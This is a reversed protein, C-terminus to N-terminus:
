DDLIFTNELFLPKSCKPHQISKRPTSPQPVRVPSDIGTAIDWVVQVGPLCSVAEIRRRSNVEITFCAVQEEQQLLQGVCFLKFETREVLFLNFETTAIQPEHNAYQHVVIQYTGPVPFFMIHEVPKNSNRDDTVKLNGLSNMDVDLDSKCRGCSRNRQSVDEGHPCIVHLDLDNWNFWELGVVTALRSKKAGFSHEMRTLSIKQCITPCTSIETVIKGAQNPANFDLNQDKAIDLIQEVVQVNKQEAALHLPTNGNADTVNFDANNEKLISIVESTQPAPNSCLIHLATQGQADKANIFQDLCSFNKLKKNKAKQIVKQVLSPCGLCASMLLNGKNKCQLDVEIQDTELLHDVLEHKGDQLMLMAPTLGDEDQKNIDVGAKILINLSNTTKANFLPTRGANDPEDLRAGKHLAIPLFEHMDKEVLFHAPTTGDLTKLNLDIEPRSLLLRTSGFDSNAAALLVPTAGFQDVANIDARHELLSHIVEPRSTSEISLLASHLATQKKQNMQHVNAGENLLLRTTNLNSSGCSIILPTDGRNNPQNLVKKERKLLLEATAGNDGALAWILPSNGNSDPIDPKGGHDLVLQILDPEANFSLKTLLTQNTPNTYGQCAPLPQNIQSQAHKLVFLLIENSSCCFELVRLNICNPPTKPCLLFVMPPDENIIALDLPLQDRWNKEILLPETGPINLIANAAELYRTQAAVHLPQQGEKTDKLRVLPNTELLNLLSELNRQDIAAFLDHCIDKEPKKPKQIDKIKALISTVLHRQGPLGLHFSEISSKTRLYFKLFGQLSKTLSSCVQPPIELTSPNDLFFTVLSTLGDRLPTLEKSSGGSLEAVVRQAGWVLEILPYYPSKSCPGLDNSKFSSILDSLLSQM